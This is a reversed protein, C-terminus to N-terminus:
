VTFLAVSAEVGTEDLCGRALGGRAGEDCHQPGPRRGRVEGAERVHECEGGRGALGLQGAGAVGGQGHHPALRM